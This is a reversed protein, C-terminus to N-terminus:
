YSIVPLWKEQLLVSVSLEPGPFPSASHITTLYGNREQFIETQLDYVIIKAV